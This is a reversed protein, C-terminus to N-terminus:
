EGRRSLVARSGVVSQEVAVSDSGCGSARCWRPTDCRCGASEDLGAATGVDVSAIFQARGALLELWDRETRGQAEALMSGFAEPADALACDFLAFRRGIVRRCSRIDIPSEAM